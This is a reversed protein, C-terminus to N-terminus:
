YSKLKEQMESVANIFVDTLNFARSINYMEDIIMSLTEKMNDFTNEAEEKDSFEYTTNLLANLRDLYKRIDKTAKLNKDNNIDHINDDAGSSERDEVNNIDNENEINDQSEDEKAEISEDYFSIEDTSETIRDENQIEDEHAETSKEKKNESVIDNSQSDINLGKSEEERISPDRSEAENENIFTIESKEKDKVEPKMIENFTKKGDRYGEVLTKVTERTLDKGSSICEKLIELIEVQEEPTHKAIPLVNSMGVDGDRIMDKIPSILRNVAAYRAAHHTSIGLRKAIEEQKSGKFGIKDLYAEHLLYRNAFLLPDKESDRQSNSLLVYNFVDNDSKFDKVICPFLSMGTKVGASRRRHGSVIMFKGNTMGFDTVELPDSFGIQKISNEIDLTDNIDERNNPYDIINENQIMKITQVNAKESSERAVEAFVSGAKSFNRAM